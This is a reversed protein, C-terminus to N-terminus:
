RLRVVLGATIVFPNWNLKDNEGAPVHAHLVLMSVDFSYQRDHRNPGNPDGLRRRLGIGGGITPAGAFRFATQQGGIQVRESQDSTFGGVLGSWYLATDNRQWFRYNLGLQYGIPGIRGASMENGATGLNVAISPLVGSFVVDLCCSDIRRIADFVLVPAAGGVTASTAADVTTRTETAALVGTGVRVSWVPEQAQLMRASGATSAIVLVALRVLVRNM